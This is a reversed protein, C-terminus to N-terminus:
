RSFSFSRVAGGSPSRPRVRARLGAVYIAARQRNPGWHAGPGRVRGLWLASPLMASRTRSCDQTLPLAVISM